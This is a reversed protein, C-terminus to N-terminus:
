TWSGLLLGLDAGDVLGSDDLDATGGPQGWAGLLLGLDAGDVVGDGNLDAPVDQAICDIWAVYNNGFFGPTTKPDDDPCPIGKNVSRPETATSVVFYWLGPDLVITLQTPKCDFASERALVSTADCPGRVVMIEAPFEPEIIFDVITDVTLTLAYWDTDRPAGTSATGHIVEGCVVGSFGPSAMNCGDNLRQGCEEAEQIANPPVFATCPTALCLNLAQDACWSDWQGTCCFGDFLCMFNCCDEDICGTGDHVEFCSGADPCQIDACLKEAVLVCFEDWTTSCCDPNFACVENCCAVGFCGPEDHPRFCDGAGPGCQALAAGGLTTTLAVAATTVLMHFAQTTM